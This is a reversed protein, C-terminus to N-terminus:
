RRRKKQRYKTNMEKLAPKLIKAWAKGDICMYNNAASIDKLETENIFDGIKRSKYDFSKLGCEAGFESHVVCAKIPDKIRKCSVLLMAGSMLIAM